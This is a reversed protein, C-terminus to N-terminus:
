HSTQASESFRSRGLRALAVGECLRVSRHVTDGVPPEPRRVESDKGVMTAMGGWRDLKREGGTGRSEKTHFIKTACFFRSSPSAAQLPFPSAAALPAEYPAIPADAVTSPFSSCYRRFECTIQPLSYRPNRALTRSDAVLRM